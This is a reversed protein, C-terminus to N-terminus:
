ALKRRRGLFGLAGLGALMMAYTEPEPVPAAMAPTTIVTPSASVGTVTPAGTTAGTNNGGAIGSLTVAYIGSNINNLQYSYHYATSGFDGISTAGTASATATISNGGSTLTMAINSSGPLAFSLLGGSLFDFGGSINSLTSLTINGLNFVYTGGDADIQTNAFSATSALLAVAAALSKFKM